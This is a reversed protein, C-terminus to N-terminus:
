VGRAKEIYYDLLQFFRDHIEEFQFGLSIALDLSTSFALRDNYAGPEGQDSLLAKKGTKEEVYSIIDGVSYEGPNAANIPGKFDLLALDALFHGAADSFIYGIRQDINNIFMPKENVVHDVYLFLRDTYDDQGIVYPLRAAACPIHSYTQFVAREAARKRDGYPLSERDCWVLNGSLPDFHSEKMGMRLDEDYVAITSTYVYRPPQIVDLVLKIDNSCYVLNDIVIDFDGDRGSLAKKMSLPDIRDLTIHSTQGDFPDPAEGRTAITIHHGLSLLRKVMHIGFFGTGGLVLIRKLESM